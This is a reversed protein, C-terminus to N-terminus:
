TGPSKQELYQRLCCGFRIHRYRLRWAKRGPGGLDLVQSGAELAGAHRSLFGDVFYQRLSYGFNKLSGDEKAKELM